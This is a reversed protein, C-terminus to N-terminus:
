LYDWLEQLWSPANDSAAASTSTAAAGTTGTAAAGATAATADAGTDFGATGAGGNMGSMGAGGSGGFMGGSGMGGQQGTMPGGNPGSMSGPTSGMFGQASQPANMGSPLSSNQGQMYPNQQLYTNGTANNAVPSGNMANPNAPPPSGGGQFGNYLKQGALGTNLVNGIGSTAGIQPQQNPMPPAAMQGGTRQSAMPIQPASNMPSSMGGGSGGGQQMMQLIQLMYPSISQAM